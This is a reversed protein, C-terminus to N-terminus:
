LHERIDDVDFSTLKVVGQEDVVFVIPIEFARFALAAEDDAGNGSFVHKVSTIGQAELYRRLDDEVKFDDLNVALFTTKSGGTKPSYDRAIRNFADLQGRSKSCWKAWFLVALKTGRYRHITDYGGDLYTVRTYPVQLGPTLADPLKTGCGSLCFLCCVLALACLSKLM